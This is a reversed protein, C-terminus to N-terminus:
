TIAGEGKGGVVTVVPIATTGTITVSGTVAACGAVISTAIVDCYNYWRSYTPNTNVPPIANVYLISALTVPDPPILKAVGTGNTVQSHVTTITVQALATIFTTAIANMVISNEATFNQFYTLCLSAFTTSYTAVDFGVMGTGIGAGPSTAYITGSDVTTVLSGIFGFTLGNAISQAFSFKGIAYAPNGLPFNLLGTLTPGWTANYGTLPM